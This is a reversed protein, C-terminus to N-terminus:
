AVRPSTLFAARASLNRNLIPPVSFRPAFAIPKSGPMNAAPEVSSEETLFNAFWKRRM